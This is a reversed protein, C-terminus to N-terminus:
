LIRNVHAVQLIKVHNSGRNKNMGVCYLDCLEWKRNKPRSFLFINKYWFDKMLDVVYM